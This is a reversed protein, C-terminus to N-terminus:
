CMFINFKSDKKTFSDNRVRNKIMTCHDKHDEKFLIWTVVNM